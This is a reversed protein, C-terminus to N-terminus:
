HHIHISRILVKNFYYKWVSNDYYISEMDNLMHIAIKILKSNHNHFMM